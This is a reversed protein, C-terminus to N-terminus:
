LKRTKKKKKSSHTKVNLSHKNLRNGGAATKRYEIVTKHLTDLLDKDWQETIENVMEFQTPYDQLPFFPSLTNYKFNLLLGLLIGKHIPNNYQFNYAILEESFGLNYLIDQVEEIDQEKIDNNVLKHIIIEVPEISSSEVYVKTIKIGQLIKKYKRNSFAQLANKALVNFEEVNAEDSCKNAFLQIINNGNYSVMLNIGYTIATTDLIEFDTYCPYGLIKGMEELSIDERGNYDTKSIIVGQYTQYNTSQKLEHFIRQIEEIIYKTKPDNHTAEGYDQPQVLMAPRVDENVLICNLIVDLNISM